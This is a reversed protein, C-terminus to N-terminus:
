EDTLAIQDFSYIYVCKYLYLTFSVFYIISTEISAKDCVWFTISRPM